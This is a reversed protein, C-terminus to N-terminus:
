GWFLPDVMRSGARGDSAVTRANTAARRWITARTATTSTTGVAQSRARAGVASAPSTARTFRPGNVTVTVVDPSSRARWNTWIVPGVFACCACAYWIFIWDITGSPVITFSPSTTASSSREVKAFRSASTCSASVLASACYSCAISSEVRVREVARSFMRVM